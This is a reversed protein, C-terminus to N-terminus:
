EEAEEEMAIEIKAWCLASHTLIAGELRGAEEDDELLMFRLWNVRAIRPTRARFGLTELEEIEEQAPNDKIGWGVCYNFLQISAEDARAAANGKLGRLYEVTQSSPWGGLHRLIAHVANQKLPQLHLTVGCELEFTDSM